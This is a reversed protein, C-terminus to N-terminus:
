EVWEESLGSVPYAEGEGVIEADDGIRGIGPIKEGSFQTPVSRTLRDALFVPDNFADMVESFVIQGTINAFASTDVGAESLIVGSRGGGSGPSWSNVAERGHEVFNEFLDRISFDRAKYAGEALAGRLEEFFVEPKGDRKAAEYATRWKTARFM